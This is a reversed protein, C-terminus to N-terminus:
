KAKIYRRKSDTGWIDHVLVIVNADSQRCVQDVRSLMETQSDRGNDRLVDRVKYNLLASELRADFEDVGWIWGRVPASLQAGGVRGYNFDIDSYRCSM